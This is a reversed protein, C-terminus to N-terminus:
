KRLEKEEEFKKDWQIFKPVDPGKTDNLKEKMNKM